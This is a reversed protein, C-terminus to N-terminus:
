DSDCSQVHDPEKNVIDQLARCFQKLKEPSMANVTVELCADGYYPEKVYLSLKGQTGGSHRFYLRM